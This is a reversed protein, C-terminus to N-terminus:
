KRCSYLTCSYKILWASLCNIIPKHNWVKYPHNKLGNLNNNRKKKCFFVKKGGKKKKYNALIKIEDDKIKYNKGIERKLFFLVYKWDMHKENMKNM